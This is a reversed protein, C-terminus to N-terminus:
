VDRAQPRLNDKAVSSASPSALLQARVSQIEQLLGRHPGKFICAQERSQIKLSTHRFYKIAGRENPFCVRENGNMNSASIFLHLVPVNILRSKDITETQWVAPKRAALSRWRMGRWPTQNDFHSKADILASIITKESVSQLPSIHPLLPSPGDFKWGESRRLSCMKLNKGIYKGFDSIKSQIGNTKQSHPKLFRAFAQAGRLSLLVQITLQGSPPPPLPSHLRHFATCPM